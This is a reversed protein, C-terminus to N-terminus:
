KGFGGGVSLVEGMVYDADSLYICAKAVDEPYGIRGAPIGDILQEMENVTLHSNMQTDIVGPSVCNVRVKSPALEKSLAKTFAIVAGKSASYAVECSAGVEGWISAINIICGGGCGIMKDAVARCCHYVGKVNVDFIRNWEIPSTDQIVRVLSIGANNVLVDLKDYIGYFEKFMARVQAEDSVDARLLVPCYGQMNFEEQTALATEEDSHYNIVVEYGQQLFAHAIAKGIGKTGGTILATKM